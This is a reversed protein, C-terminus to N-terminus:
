LAVEFPCVFLSTLDHVGGVRMLQVDPRVSLQDASSLQLFFHLWSHRTVKGLQERFGGFNASSRAGSCPTNSHLDVRVIIHSLLKQVDLHSPARQAWLGACVVRSSRLAHVDLVFMGSRCWCRLAASPLYVCWTRARSTSKWLHGSWPVHMRTARHLASFDHKADALIGDLGRVGFERVLPQQCPTGGQLPGGRQQHPAEPALIRLGLFGWM